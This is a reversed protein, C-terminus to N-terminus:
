GSASAKDPKNIIATLLSETRSYSRKSPSLDRLVGNCLNIAKSVPLPKTDQNQAVGQWHQQVTWYQLTKRELAAQAEVRMKNIVSEQQM